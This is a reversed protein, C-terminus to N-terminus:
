RAVDNLPANPSIIREIDLIRQNIAAIYLTYTIVANTNSIQKEEFEHLMIEKLENLEDLNIRKETLKTILIDKDYHTPSKLIKGLNAEVNSWFLETKSEIISLRVNIESISQAMIAYVKETKDCHDRLANDAHERLIGISDQLAKKNDETMKDMAKQKEDSDKKKSYSQWRIVFILGLISVILAPTLQRIIEEMSNGM